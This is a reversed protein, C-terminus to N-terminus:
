RKKSEKLLTAFPIPLTAASDKRAREEFDVPVSTAPVPFWPRPKILYSGNTRKPPSQGRLASLFTRAGIVW